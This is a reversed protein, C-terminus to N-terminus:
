YTERMENEPDSFQSQFDSLVDKRELDKRYVNRMNEVNSKTVGDIVKM